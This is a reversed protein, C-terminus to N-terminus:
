FLRRNRELFELWDNETDVDSLERLLKVKLDRARARRLTQKLVQDTSWDISQFLAARPERLGILWYGGDQSPGLVADNTGLVSWALEIDAPTIAPCDSGIVAV